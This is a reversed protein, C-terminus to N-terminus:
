MITKSKVTFIDSDWPRLVVRTMISQKEWSQVAMSVTSNIKLSTIMYLLMGLSITESLSTCNDPFGETLMLHKM